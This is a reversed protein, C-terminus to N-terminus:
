SSCRIKVINLEERINSLERLITKQGEVLSAIDKQIRALEDGESRAAGAGAALTLVAAVSAVSALILTKKMPNEGKM